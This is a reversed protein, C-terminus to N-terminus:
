WYAGFTDITLVSVQVFALPGGHPEFVFTGDGKCFVALDDGGLHVRFAFGKVLQAPVQACALAVNRVHFALVHVPLVAGDTENALLGAHRDDDVQARFGQVDEVVQGGLAHQKRIQRHAAPSRAVSNLDRQRCSPM